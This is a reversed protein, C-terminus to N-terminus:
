GTDNGTVAFGGNHLDVAPYVATLQFRKSRGSSLVTDGFFREPLEEFTMFHWDALFKEGAYLVLFYENDIIICRNDIDHAIYELIQTAPTGPYSTAMSIGAEIAGRGIADDGLMIIEQGAQNQKM